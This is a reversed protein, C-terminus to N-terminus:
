VLDCIDVTSNAHPPQAEYLGFINKNFASLDSNSLTKNEKIAYKKNFDLFLSELIQKQLGQRMLHPNNSLLHLCNSFGIVLKYLFIQLSVQMKIECGLKQLSAEIM